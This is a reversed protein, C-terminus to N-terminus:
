SARLTHCLQFLPVRAKEATRRLLAFEEHAKELGLQSPARGAEVAEAAGEDAAVSPASSRACSVPPLTTRRSRVSAPSLASCSASPETSDAAASRMEGNATPRQRGFRLGQRTGDREAAAAAQQQPRSERFPRRSSTRHLLDLGEAVM